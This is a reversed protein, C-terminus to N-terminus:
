IKSVHSSIAKGFSSTLQQPTLLQSYRTGNYRVSVEISGDPSVARSTLESRYRGSAAMTRANARVVIDSTMRMEAPSATRGTHLYLVKKAM